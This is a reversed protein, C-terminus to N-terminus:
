IEEGPQRLSPGSRLWDGSRGGSKEELRLGDIVMGRDVAKCMDYISLAAISAATLAEMEVGTRDFARVSVSIDIAPSGDAAAELLVDVGTLRLPHCLPILEHTRKTAQIAAIRATAFVDGKPVGGSLILALTAPEMRVRATARARRLTEPKPSVDVMHAEGSDKLHTLKKPV